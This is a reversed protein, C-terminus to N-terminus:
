SAKRRSNRGHSTTNVQKRKKSKLVANRPEMIKAEDANRILCRLRELEAETINLNKLEDLLRDGLRRAFQKLPTNAHHKIMLEMIHVKASSVPTQSFKRPLEDIFNTWVSAGDAGAELIYNVLEPDPDALVFPHLAHKLFRAGEKDMMSKTVRGKVFEIINYEIAIITSKNETFRVLNLLKVITPVGMTIWYLSKTAHRLLEFAPELRNMIVNLTVFDLYRSCALARLLRDIEQCLLWVMHDDQDEDQDRQERCRASLAFIKTLMASCLFGRADFPGDTCTQLINQADATLLFDILSRHLFDVDTSLLQALREDSPITTFKALVSSNVWELLGMCRSNLRRKGLDIRYQLADLDILDLETFDYRPRAIFDPDEAELFTFELLGRPWEVDHNQLSFLATQLFASGERRYPPDISDIIRKFFGNLDAPMSGVKRRLTRITEGDRFGRLLERVVLHVWLFVGSSKDVIAEILNEGEGSNHLYSSQLHMSYSLSHRVYKDIDLKTFLQLQLQPLEHFFDSFINWPRSSVCLKVSECDTLKQLFDLMNHRDDDTGELEDLGDILLLIKRTTSIRNLCAEIVKKLEPISWNLESGGACAISWKEASVVAEILWHHAFLLQYSLAQLLGQFSKQFGRGPNWLFFRCVFLDHGSLWRTCCSEMLNQNLYQMLTSKGSGPKGSVWFLRHVPAPSDLWAQFGSPCADTVIQPSLIWHYTDEHAERIQNRRSDMDRFSLSSCLRNQAIKTKNIDSTTRVADQELLITEIGLILRSLADTHLAQFKAFLTEYTSEDIRLNSMQTMLGAIDNHLTNSTDRIAALMNSESRNSATLIAEQSLASAQTSSCITLLLSLAFGLSISVAHLTSFRYHSKVKSPLSREAYGRDRRPAM